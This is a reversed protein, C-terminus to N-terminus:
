VIFYINLNGQLTYKNVTQKCSNHHIALFADLVTTGEFWLIDQTALFELLEVEVGLHNKLALVLSKLSLYTKLVKVM